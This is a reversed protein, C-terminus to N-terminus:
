SGAPTSTRDAGGDATPAERGGGPAALREFLAELRGLEDASRFRVPRAAPRAGSARAEVLRRLQGLRRFVLAHVLAVIAAAGALSVALFAGYMRFAGAELAAHQPTFDHLVLLGGVKRGGADRLPVIGRLVARGGLEVHGLVKGEDPLAEVDETFDALGEAFPTADIAVVDPRDNWTNQRPGLVSAWAREDLFRKKVVLGFDDGTRTKLQRLFQDFDQGLEVYGLPKGDVLWPRVARLAFATKGLEKGAGLERTQEARRLTAREVRDGHLEPLHVRLFVVDDPEPLHFYWHTIGNRERMREFIPTAAALLRDRDRAAFAAQLEPNGLLADLTAALKDLQAHEEADFAESARRLSVAAAAEVNREIWATTLWGGAGAVALAVLTLAFALKVEVSLSRM